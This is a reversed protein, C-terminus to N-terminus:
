KSVIQQHHTRTEFALLSRPLGSQLVLPLNFLCCTGRLGGELVYMFSWYSPASPSFMVEQSRTRTMASETVGYGLGLNLCKNALHIEGHAAPGQWKMVTQYPMQSKLCSRYNCCFAFLTQQQNKNWFTLKKRDGMCTNGKVGKCMVLTM